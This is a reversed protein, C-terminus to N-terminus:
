VCCLKWCFGYLATQGSRIKCLFWWWIWIHWLQFYYWHRNCCRNGTLCQPRIHFITRRWPQMNTFQDAPPLFRNSKKCFFIFHFIISCSLLDKEFWTQKAPCFLVFRILIRIQLLFLKCNFYRSSKWHLCTSNNFLILKWM